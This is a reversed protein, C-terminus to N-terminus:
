RLVDRLACATDEVGAPEPVVLDAGCQLAQTWTDDDLPRSVIVITPQQLDHCTRICHSVEIGEAGPRDLHLVVLDFHLQLALELALDSCSTSHVERQPASVAEVLTTLSTVDDAAVLIRQPRTPLRAAGGTARGTLATRGPLPTGPATGTSTVLSLDDGTTATTTKTM